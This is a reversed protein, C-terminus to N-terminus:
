LKSTNKESGTCPVTWDHPPGYQIAKIADSLRSGICMAQQAESFRDYPLQIEGKGERCICSIQQVVAATGTGFMELLRGESAATWVEELGIERESVSFDKSERALALVSDRTVGPLITGDLPPTALEIEGTRSKIVVFANFTGGESIIREGTGGKPFTYLVQQADFTDRARMQIPITPAYNGAVKYAGFGGPWARVHVEDFFLKVKGSFYKGTPSAMCYITAGSTPGVGLTGATACAMPRLYLAHGETSPVWDKEISVYKQLCALLEEADFPPLGVAACSRQFRAMNLDPRFLVPTGSASRYVKMGEFCSMGYHLAQMAPHLGVVGMPEVRPESWRGEHWKIVM